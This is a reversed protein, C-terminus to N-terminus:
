NILVGTKSFLVSWIELARKNVDEKAAVELEAGVDVEAGPEFEVVVCRGAAFDPILWPVRAIITSLTLREATHKTDPADKQSYRFGKLFDLLLM